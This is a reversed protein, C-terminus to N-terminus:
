RGRSVEPLRWGWWAGLIGLGALFLLAWVVGALALLTSIGGVILLIVGMATNSVAVYVTRMDGEAMDVVYTKRGVRVGTHLLTLLFYGTVLVVTGWAAGGDFGPLSVVAVLVLVVVSAAAGAFSMLARSSRDALRGFIRGGILSAVGSALVFGGLGTLTDTGSTASLTVVFPPSLASVLLFSRTTVFSRFERDTRLLALVGTPTGDASADPAGDAPERFGAQVVAAAVWLAAAAALMWALQGASLNDGAFIRIALGLTIAVIGAATTGLGNIQGREGKPITRGQVDKSAISTLCRGLSFVALAAIIALGAALGSGVAGTLAMAAVAVAQILSGVVLVWKRHRVRMVLPTLFAQPLMSGSERIPVLLGILATPAGLANLLWPLVTSPKVIQDGSSQLASAVVQRLGNYAVHDGAGGPLAREADLDRHLLASYFRESLSM